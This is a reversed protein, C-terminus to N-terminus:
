GCSTFPGTGLEVPLTLPPQDGLTVVLSYQGAPLTPDSDWTVDYHATQGAPLNVNGCPTGKPAQPAASAVHMDASDSVVLQVPQDCPAAYHLPGAADVSVHVTSGAPMLGRDAAASMQGASVHPPTTRPQPTCHAAPAGEGCAVLLLCPLAVAPQLHRRSPM